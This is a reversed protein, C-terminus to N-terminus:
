NLPFEMTVRLGDKEFARSSSGGLNFSIEREILKMGFGRRKPEATEPGDMEKWILNMRRSEGEGNITWAIKVQGKAVSLSGYKGANTALEHLVM